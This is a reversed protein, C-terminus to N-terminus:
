DEITEEDPSGGNVYEDINDVVDKINDMNVVHLVTPYIKIRADDRLNRDIYDIINYQRLLQLSPKLRDKTMRKNDLYGVKQLEDHVEYLYIEVNEDLTIFDKKTQYLMRFVLLLISEEKKLRLRNFSSQNVIYCVEDHRNIILEFDALNLYNSFIEKYALIFRYDNADGPRKRTLFNVQFLKNIVRSFNQKDAEKLSFFEENLQKLAASKTIM